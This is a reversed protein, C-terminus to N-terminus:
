EGKITLFSLLIIKKEDVLPVHCEMGFQGIHQHDQAKGRDLPAPGAFPEPYRQMTQPPM